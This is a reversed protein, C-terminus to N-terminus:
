VQVVDCDRILNSTKLLKVFNILKKDSYKRTIIQFGFPMGKPGKFKPIVITPVGLYTWILTSDIGDNYDLGSPAEGASALTFVFDYNQDLWQDFYSGGDM